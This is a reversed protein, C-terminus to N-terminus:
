KSTYLENYPILHQVAVGIGIKKLAIILASYTPFNTSGRRDGPYWQVWENLMGLLQRGLQKENEIKQIEESTFGVRDAICKWWSELGQGSEQMSKHLLKIHGKRLIDSPIENLSQTSKKQQVSKLELEKIKLDKEQIIVNLEREKTRMEGHVKEFTTTLTRQAFAVLMKRANLVTTSRGRKVKMGQEEIKHELTTVRAKLTEIEEECDTIRSQTNAMGSQISSNLETQHKMAELEHKLGEYEESKAKLKEELMSKEACAREHQRIADEFGALLLKHLVDSERPLEQSPQVIQSSPVVETCINSKETLEKRIESLLKEKAAIPLQEELINLLIEFCRSDTETSTKVALVLTRAKDKSTGGLELIREYVSGPILGKALCQDSVHQVCDSIATILRPLFSAIVEAEM